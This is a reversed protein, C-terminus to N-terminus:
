RSGNERVVEVRVSATGFELEDGPRIAVGFPDKPPVEIVQGARIIRTGNASREDFIRYEAGGHDYRIECHGRGVTRSHPDEEDFAVHNQRAHGRDDVPAASRGIRVSPERLSYSAASARGRMITLILEPQVNAGPRETTVPAKSAEPTEAAYEIVMPQDVPWSAPRKRV